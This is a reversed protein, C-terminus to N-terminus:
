IVGKELENHNERMYYFLYQQAFGADNGFKNEAFQRVSKRDLSEHYLTNLVKRVWVDVPFAERKGAGFLLICDAVKPGVGCIKMLEARATDVPAQEVLQLDVEGSNVKYIADLIYKDRYGAKLPGLDKATVHLLQEAAPFTYFMRGCFDVPTGFLTCFREIIGKIRPINNNASIIFSLICEWLDQRLIRIGSGYTVARMLVADGTLRSKVALYDTDLDFYRKWFVDFENRPTNKFILENERSSLILPKGGAIGTYSGDELREWRFCQGCEFIHEPVFDTVGSVILNGNEERIRMM